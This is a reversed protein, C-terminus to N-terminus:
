GGIGLANAMGAKGFKDPAPQPEEQQEEGTYAAKLDQVDQELQNIKDMVPDAGTDTGDDQQMDQGDNQPVNM